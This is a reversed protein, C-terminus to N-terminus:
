MRHLRKTVKVKGSFVDMEITRSFTGGTDILQYNMKMQNLLQKIMMLNRNGVKFVDETNNSEAGGFLSITLEKKLCGYERCIRNILIPIGKTAYYAPKSVEPINSYPSPLVIHAMGAVKRVPSYVTVGVCTSLAYTKLVDGIQNSIAMDGLGIIMEM